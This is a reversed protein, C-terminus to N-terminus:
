APTTSPMRAAIREVVAAVKAPEISVMCEFTKIPCSNGGHISCPRCPLGNREIVVDYEGRPAFGFAPVTAGFLAVVPTRMAVAIHMPASDNSVVARCRRILEASQLLSLRGAATLVKPSRVRAQIWGCLESDAAGGVLVVGWGGEVLRQTLEAFHNQPWRKTNWVSGPAVAVMGSPNVYANERLLAEVAMRDADDPYLSPLAFSPEIGLPRLLALNRDIEHSDNGYPVRDTLLMRGSSTDFGVRRPIGARRVIAASRLSRHPVLAADFRGERLARALRLMSAFGRERGRKDYEVIRSISPHNKLVSAVAPIAVFTIEAGAAAAKLQQVMPLSLIIDGIFATHFVLVRNM